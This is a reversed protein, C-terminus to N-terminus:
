GRRRKEALMSEAREWDALKLWAAIYEERRDQHDLYYAHEWLDCCLLPTLRERDPSNQGTTVGIRLRGTVDECLWSYGAGRLGMSAETFRETFGEFSGFAASLKKGLYEPVKKRAPSMGSFYLRHNYVAGAYYRVDENGSRVLRELPVGALRPEKATLGDLKEACGSYIGSYHFFMTFESIEPSLEAFGYGTGFLNNDM